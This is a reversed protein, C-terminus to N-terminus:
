VYQKLKRVLMIIQQSPETWHFTVSVAAVVTEGAACERNTHSKYKTTAKEYFNLIIYGSFFKM